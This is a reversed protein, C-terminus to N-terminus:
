YGAIAHSSEKVKCFVSVTATRVKLWGAVRIWAGSRGLQNISKATIRNM